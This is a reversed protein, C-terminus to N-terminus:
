SDNLGWMKKREPSWNQWTGDFVYKLADLDRKRGSNSPYFNWSLSRRPGDSKKEGTAHWASSSWVLTFSPDLEIAIEDPHRAFCEGRSECLGTVAMELEQLERLVEIRPLLHSGPLMRLPANDPGHRDLATRFSVCDVNEQGDVHWGLRRWPQGDDTFAATIEGLECAGIHMQDTGLLQKAMDVIDPREALRFLPEGVMYFQYARLNFEQPWERREWEPVVERQLQDVEQLDDEGVLNPLLIYAQERFQDIQSQTLEM